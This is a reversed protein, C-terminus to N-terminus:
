KQSYYLPKIGIRDRAIWLEKRTDDWIAIAFMGRLRKAFEWGGWQEYAHVIVETDSRTQFQHGYSELQSRLDRFNYIEGNQVIHVTGDENAIPQNGGEVDIISLRRIGLGVCGNVWRGEDDPGRHIIESNMAAIDAETVPRKDLVLGAIGCM